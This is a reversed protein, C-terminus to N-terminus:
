EGWLPQKTTHRDDVDDRLKAYIPPNLRENVIKAILLPTTSLLTTMGVKSLFETTSIFTIDFYTDLMYMSTIYMLLTAIISLVMWKHWTHVIISVNVLETCILATFTISVIHVFNEEFLLISMVM